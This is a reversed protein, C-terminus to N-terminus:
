IETQVHRAFVKNKVSVSIIISIVATTIAYWINLQLSVAFCVAYSFVLLYATIGYGTKKLIDNKQLM